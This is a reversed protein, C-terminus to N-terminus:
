CGCDNNLTIDLDMILDSYLSYLTTCDCANCQQYYKIAEYKSYLLKEPNNWTYTALSCLLACDVLISGYETTESEGDNEEIVLRFCYVGDLLTEGSQGFFDIDLAIAGESIDSTQVEYTEEADENVTYYLTIATVDNTSNKFGEFLDHAIHITTCDQNKTITM